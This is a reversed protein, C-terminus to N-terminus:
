WRSTHDFLSKPGRKSVMDVRVFVQVGINMSSTNCMYVCVSHPRIYTSMM